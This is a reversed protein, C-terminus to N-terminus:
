RDRCGPATQRWRVLLPLTLLSLYACSFAAAVAHGKTKWTKTYTGPPTFGDASFAFHGFGM